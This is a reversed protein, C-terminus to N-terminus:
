CPPNLISKGMICTGIIVVALVVINYEVPSLFCTNFIMHLVSVVFINKYKYYAIGLVISTLIAWIFLPSIEVFSLANRITWMPIHWLAWIIGVFIIAGLGKGKHSVRELLFGRWAAEEILGTFFLYISGFFPTILSPYANKFVNVGTQIQYYYSVSIGLALFVFCVSFDKVKPKFCLLRHLFATLNRECLLTLAAMIAPTFIFLYKLSVISEPVIMGFRKLLMPFYCVFSLIYVLIIWLFTKVQVMKM